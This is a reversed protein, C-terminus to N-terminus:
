PLISMNQLMVAIICAFTLIMIFRYTTLINNKRRLMGKLEEVEEQEQELDRQAWDLMEKLRKNEDQATTKDSNAKSINNELKTICLCVQDFQEKAVHRAKKENELDLNAQKLQHHLRTVKEHHQQIQEEASILQDCYEQKEDQEQKLEMEKQFIDGKLNEIRKRKCELDKEADIRLQKQEELKRKAQCTEEELQDIKTLNNWVYENLQKVRKKLKQCKAEKKAFAEVKEEREKHLFHALHSVAESLHGGGNSHDLTRTSTEQNSSANPTVLSSRANKESSQQPKRLAHESSDNQLTPAPIGRSSNAPKEECAGPFSKYSIPMDNYLPPSTDQTSSQGTPLLLSVIFVAFSTEHLVM